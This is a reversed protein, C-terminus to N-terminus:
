AGQPAAVPPLSTRRFRSGPVAIKRNTNPAAPLIFSGVVTILLMVVNSLLLVLAMKGGVHMEDNRHEGFAYVVVCTVLLIILSIPILARWALGMLQDFRFRPLSWRVWMFIFIIVITKTFFVISRVICALLSTTVEPHSPDVNGALAPWLKDLWPLHWGGFFLAV